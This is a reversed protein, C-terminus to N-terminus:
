DMGWCQSLAKEARCEASLYQFCIHALEARSNKALPSGQGGTEPQLLVADCKNELHRSLWYCKGAALHGATPMNDTELNLV